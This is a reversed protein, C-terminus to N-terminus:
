MQLQIFNFMSTIPSFYIIDTCIYIYIPIHLMHLTECQIQSIPSLGSCSGRMLNGAMEQQWHCDIVVYFYKQHNSRLLFM